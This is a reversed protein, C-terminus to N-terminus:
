WFRRHPIRPHLDPTTESPTDCLGCTRFSIREVVRTINGGKEEDTDDSVDKECRLNARKEVARRARLSDRGNGTRRLDAAGNRVTRREEKHYVLLAVRGKGRWSDGSCRPKRTEFLSGYTNLVHHQDHCRLCGLCPHLVIKKYMKVCM